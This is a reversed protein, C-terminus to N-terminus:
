VKKGINVKSLLIYLVILILVVIAFILFLPWLLSLVIIFSIPFINDKLNYATISLEHIAFYITFITIFILASIGLYM